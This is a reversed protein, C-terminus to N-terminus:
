KITTVTNIITTSSSCIIAALLTIMTEKHLTYPRWSFKYMYNLLAGLSERFGLHDKYRMSKKLTEPIEATNLHLHWM